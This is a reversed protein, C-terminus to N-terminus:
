RRPERFSHAAQHALQALLPDVRIQEALERWGFGFRCPFTTRKGVEVVPIERPSCVGIVTLVSQGRGVRAAEIAIGQEDVSDPPKTCHRAIHDLSDGLAHGHDKKQRRDSCIGVIYMDLQSGPQSGAARVNLSETRNRPRRRQSCELMLERIRGLRGRVIPRDLQDRRGIRQGLHSLDCARTEDPGLAVIPFELGKSAHITMVRVVEDSEEAVNAEAEDSSARQESLWRAFARLGCQEFPAVWGAGPWSNGGQVLTREIGALTM